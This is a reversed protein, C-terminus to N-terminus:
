VSLIYNTLATQRHVDSSHRPGVEALIDNASGSLGRAFAHLTGRRDDPMSSSVISLLEPRDAFETGAVPHPPRQRM